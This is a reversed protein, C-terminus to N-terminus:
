EEEMNAAAQEAERYRDWEEGLWLSVDEPATAAPLQILKENIWQSSPGTPKQHVVTLEEAVALTEPLTWGALRGGAHLERLTVAWPTAAIRDRLSQVHEARRREADPDYERDDRVDMSDDADPRDLLLLDRLFYALGTTRAVAVAKDIPRGKGVVVPWEYHIVTEGGSTHVVRGHVTICASETSQQPEVLQQSEVLVALGHASLVSRAARIVAEASTYNYNHHANRSDKRIGTVAKQAACLAACM